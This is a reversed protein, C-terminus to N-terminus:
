QGYQLAYEDMKQKEESTMYRRIDTIVSGQGKFAKYIPAFQNNLVEQAKDAGNEKVNALVVVNISPWTKRDSGYVETCMYQYSAALEAPNGKNGSGWGDIYNTTLLFITDAKQTLIAWAVCRNWHKYGKNEPLYRQEVDRPVEYPYAWKISYFPLNDVRTPWNKKAANIRKGADKWVFNHSYEGELPNVPAMWDMVKQKNEPTALMLKPDIADTDGAYYCAVNFLTTRPLGNVMDELRKRITYGTMRTLPNKGITAPGFHVVFAIKEGKAKTGFFNVTPMTFGLGSMSGLGKLEREGREVGDNGLGDLKAKDPLFYSARTKQTSMRTKVNPRRSKRQLKKVTVPMQLQRRELKPRETNDGEFAVDPKTLWRVAVISGASIILVVHIIISILAAETSCLRTKRKLLKSKGPDKSM